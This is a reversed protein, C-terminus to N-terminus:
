LKVLGRKLNRIGQAIRKENEILAFRVFGEGGPGFGLGPSLAVDCDKVMLSCFEVSDLERYPEPIPAWVFMTGKPKPVDWGIRGLGDILADRRGEYIGRVEEPYDSAENITVTAAIQVPQFMGYDLYSKLKVLAQVVDKNGLLFACRWGAMSFSKTMSYLEVACEKAGEAQLISPPRYGDFGVDAYAFDHVVIMDKERCFNVVRQMFDLDVCAGTPNHPFSMVLVRPKPWGVNWANELSSMFDETMNERWRPDALSRMPVQRLDAGAFLPGYIHIPYSPSPVIAADGQQLLVWMLHSFGEKAGITNTIELEPDLQVGWHAEYYGAIAERLKPIGRSLSYRHNRSNHAAEALKEVAIEPSPIDPNGFGLDIVDAGARRAEIKLNNIITFVYPPLNTIRRFEM